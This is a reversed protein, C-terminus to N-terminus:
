NGRSRGFNPDVFRFLSRELPIGQEVNFLGVRIEEGKPDVVTWQRLQWPADTFGLTLSGESARGRQILTIAAYGRELAVRTVELAGSFAVRDQLLPAIPTQGIPVASYQEVSKDYFHVFTGDAVLTIPAPPDYDFRARGPRQLLLTGQASSGSRTATQLFRARLTTIANLTREAERVAEAEPPALAAHAPAALPALIAALLPRRQM